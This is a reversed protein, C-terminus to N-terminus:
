HRRNSATHHCKRGMLHFGQFGEYVKSSTIVILMKRYGRLSTAPLARTEAADQGEWMVQGGGRHVATNSQM